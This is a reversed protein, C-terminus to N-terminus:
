RRAIEPILCWTALVASSIEANKRSFWKMCRAVNDPPPAM